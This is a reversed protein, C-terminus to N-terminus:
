RDIFGCGIVIVIVYLSIFILSFYIAKGYLSQFINWKKCQHVLPIDRIQLLESSLRWFTETWFIKIEYEEYTNVILFEMLFRICGYVMLM